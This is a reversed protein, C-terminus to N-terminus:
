IWKKMSEKIKTYNAHVESRSMRKVEDPTFYESAVDKGAAGPSRSANALNVNAIRAEEARLRKEYLAYSASLSTGKKVNEWVSEHIREVEIDHFLDYFDSLEELMRIQVDRECELRSIEARLTSIEERLADISETSAEAGDLSDSLEQAEPMVTDEATEELAPAEAEAVEVYEENM